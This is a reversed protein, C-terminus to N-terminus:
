VLLGPNVLLTIALASILLGSVLKLWRGQQAQLKHRSMTVVVLAVMLSDDFIYALNYLALYGFYSGTNLQHQALVHTYLAPLGATCLLELLNVLVAVLTVGVLAGILNEAQIVARVRSYLTPRAGEPIALHVGRGPAFFDKIHIGGIIIGLGGLVVQLPRGYELVLFLNLWAAMFAFYVLGSVLVFVGAVLLVRGRNKINVLLSLLFLLVWMACPNFGDVLGLVVTLVPLKMTSLDLQGFPLTIMQPIAGAVPQALRDSEIGLTSLIKQPTGLQEAYGVIVLDCIVLTPVGPRAIGNAQSLQELRALNQANGSVEFVNITVSPHERKVRQLFASAQECHPCGDRVYIDVSECAASASEALGLLVALLLLPLSRSVLSATSPKCGGNRSNLLRNSCM